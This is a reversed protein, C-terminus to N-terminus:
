KIPVLPYMNFSQDDLFQIRNPIAKLIKSKHKKDIKKYRLAFWFYFTEAFDEVLALVLGSDIILAVQTCENTIKERNKVAKQPFLLGSGSINAGLPLQELLNATM